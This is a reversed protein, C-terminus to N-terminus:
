GSGTRSSPSLPICITDSVLLCVSLVIQSSKGLISLGKTPFREFNEEFASAFVLVLFAVYLVTHHVCKFYPHEFREMLLFCCRSMKNPCCCRVAYLILYAIWGVSLLLAYLVFSCALRLVRHKDMFESCAGTNQTVQRLFCQCKPTAVFQSNAFFM